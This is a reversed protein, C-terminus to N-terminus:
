GVIKGIVFAVLGVAFDLLAATAFGGSNEVCAAFFLAISSLCLILGVAQFSAGRTIGRGFIRGLSFVVISGCFVSLAVWGFGPQHIFPALIMGFLGGITGLFGLM